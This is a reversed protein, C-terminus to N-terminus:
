TRSPFTLNEFEFCYTVQRARLPNVYRLPMVDPEQIPATHSPLFDGNVCLPLKFLKQLGMWQLRTHSLLMLYMYRMPEGLGKSREFLGPLIYVLEIAM